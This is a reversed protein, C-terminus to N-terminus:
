FFGTLIGGWPRMVGSGASVAAVGALFGNCLSRIDYRPTKKHDGRVIHRKLLFCVLGCCSGALITNLLGVEAAYRGGQSNLSHNGSGCANLMGWGIVTIMTGIVMAPVNTAYFNEDEQDEKILKRVKRLFLEDVEVTEELADELLAPLTKKRYDKGGAKIREIDAKKM